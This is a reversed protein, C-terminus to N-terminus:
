IDFNGGDFYWFVQCNAFLLFCKGAPRGRGSHEYFNGNGYRGGYYGYANVDYGYYDYAEAM